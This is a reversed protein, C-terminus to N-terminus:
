RRAKGTARLALLLDAHQKESLELYYTESISGDDHRDERKVLMLKTKAGLLRGVESVAVQGDFSLVTTVGDEYIADSM